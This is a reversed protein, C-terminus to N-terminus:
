GFKTGFDLQRVQAFTLDRVNGTGDSTRNVSPDHLLVPYGDKTFELDVEVARYGKKKALRIGSLTNEPYGGRHSILPHSAVIRSFRRIRKEVRNPVRLLRYLSYLLLFPSLCVFVTTSFVVAGDPTTFISFMLSTVGSTRYSFAILLPKVWVWQNERLSTRM